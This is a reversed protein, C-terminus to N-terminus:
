FVVHYSNDLELAFLDFWRTMDLSLATLATSKQTSKWFREFPWWSVSAYFGSCIMCVRFDVRVSRELVCSPFDRCRFWSWSVPFVNFGISLHQLAQAASEVKNWLVVASHQGPWRLSSLLPIRFRLKCLPCDYITGAASVLAWRLVPIRKSRLQLKIRNTSSQVVRGM